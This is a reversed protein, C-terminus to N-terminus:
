EATESQPHVEKRRIPKKPKRAWSSELQARVSTAVAHALAPPMAQGLQSWRAKKTAGSFLWAEPFGQLIAAARESLVVANPVSLISGEHPHGGPPPIRDDSCVTTSPSDWPWELATQFESARTVTRFPEDIAVPPRNPDPLRLVQSGAQCVKGVMTKSPQDIENPSHAPPLVITPGDARLDLPADAKARITESPEDIRSARAKKGAKKRQEETTALAARYRLKVPRGLDGIPLHQLAQRCTVWPQLEFGPLAPHSADAHTPQPWQICPGDLHGFWFPRVRHQPVGYDAADLSVYDAICYGAKRLPALADQVHHWQTSDDLGPVNGILYTSPKLLRILGCTTGLMDREDDVGLRKGARSWPTCPPDAVLLRIPGPTWGARVLRLLDRVDLQVPRHGLNTEYSTCANADKDFAWQFTIGARRFGEAMGGSCPFLELNVGELLPRDGGELCMVEGCCVPLCEDLSVAEVHGCTDCKCPEGSASELLPNTM